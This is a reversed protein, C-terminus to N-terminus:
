TYLNNKFKQCMFMKSFVLKIMNIYFKNFNVLLLWSIAAITRLYYNKDAIWASHAGVNNLMICKM